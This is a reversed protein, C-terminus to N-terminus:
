SMNKFFPKGNKQATKQANPKLTQFFTSIHGLFFKQLLVRLFRRWFEFFTNLLHTKSKFKAGMVPDTNKIKKLFTLNM